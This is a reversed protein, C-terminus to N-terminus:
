TMTSRKFVYRIHIVEQWGESQWWCTIYASTVWVVEFLCFLATHQVSLGYTHKLFLSLPHPHSKTEDREDPNRCSLSTLKEVHKNQTLPQTSTLHAGSSSNIYIYWPRSDGFRFGLPVLSEVGAQPSVCFVLTGGESHVTEEWTRIRSHSRDNAHKIKYQWDQIWHTDM